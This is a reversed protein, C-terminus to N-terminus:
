EGNANGKNIKLEHPSLQEYIYIYRSLAKGNRREVSAGLWSGRRGDGSGRM